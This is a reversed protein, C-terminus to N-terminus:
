PLSEQRAVPLREELPASFLDLAEYAARTETYRDLWRARYEVAKVQWTREGIRPLETIM